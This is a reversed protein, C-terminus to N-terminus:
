RLQPQTASHLWAPGGAAGFAGRAQPNHQDRRAYCRLHVFIDPKYYIKLPKRWREGAAAALLEGLRRQVSRM